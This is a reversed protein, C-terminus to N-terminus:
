KAQVPHLSRICFPFEHFLLGFKYCNL